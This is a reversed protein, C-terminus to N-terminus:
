PLLRNISYHFRLFLLFIFLCVSKNDRYRIIHELTMKFLKRINANMVYAHRCTDRWVELTSQDFINVSNNHLLSQLAKSMEFIYCFPLMIGWFLTKKLQKSFYKIRLLLFLKWHIIIVFLFSGWLLKFRFKISSMHM